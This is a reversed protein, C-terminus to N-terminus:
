PNSNDLTFNTLFKGPPFDFFTQTLPLNSNDPNLQISNKEKEVVLCYICTCDVNFCVQRIITIQLCGDVTLQRYKCCSQLYCNSMLCYGVLIQRHRVFDWCYDSMMHMWNKLTM